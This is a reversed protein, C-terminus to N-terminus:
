YVVKREVPACNSCRHGFAWFCFNNLTLVYHFSLKLTWPLFLLFNRKQKGSHTLFHSLATLSQYCRHLCHPFFISLTSVIVLSADAFSNSHNIHTVFHLGWAAACGGTEAGLHPKLIRHRSRRSMRPFVPVWSQVEYLMALSTFILSSFHDRMNDTRSKM